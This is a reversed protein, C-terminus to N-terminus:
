QYLHIFETDTDQYLRIYEVIYDTATGRGESLLKSEYVGTGLIIYYFDNFADVGDPYKKFEGSLKTLDITHYLSGDVYFKMYTETWEFGYVHWDNNLNISSYKDSLGRKFTYSGHYKSEVSSLSESSSYDSEWIHLNSYFKSYNGMTEFIDIEGNYASERLNQDPMLWFSPHFQAGYPVKAKMELYGYKYSMRDKTVMNYPITYTGDGNDTIKMELVGNQVLNNTERKFINDDVPGQNYQAKMNGYANATNFENNWVLTREVGSLTVIQEAEGIENGTAFDGIGHFNGLDAVDKVTLASESSYFTYQTGNISVVIYAKAYLRKSDNYTGGESEFGTIYTSFTLNYTGDTNENFKWCKTLNTANIDIIASNEKATTRTILADGMVDANALLFGRSIVKFSEGNLVLDKGTNTDYNFYYRLAQKESEDLGKIMSVGGNALLNDGKINTVKELAVNIITMDASTGGVLYMYLANGQAVGDVSATDITIYADYTDFRGQTGAFNRAIYNKGEVFGQNVNVNDGEATMFAVPIKELRSYYTVTVKYTAKDEVSEAIKGVPSVVNEFTVSNSFDIVDVKEIKINKYGIESGAGGPINSNLSFVPLVDDEFEDVKIYLTYTNWVNTEEIEIKGETATHKYVLSSGLVGIGVNFGGTVGETKSVSKVDVTVKYVTNEQAQLANGNDDTLIAYSSIASASFHNYAKLYATGNDDGNLVQGANRRDTVNTYVGDSLTPYYVKYGNDNMINGTTSAYVTGPYSAFGAYLKTEGSILVSTVNKTCAEDTFWGTFYKGAPINAPVYDINYTGEIDEVTKEAEGNVSYVVKGPATLATVTIDDFYAYEGSVFM